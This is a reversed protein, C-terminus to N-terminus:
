VEADRHQALTQERLTNYEIETLQGKEKLERLDQLTWTTDSLDKSDGTLFWRRSLMWVLWFVVVIGMLIVVWTVIGTIDTGALSQV